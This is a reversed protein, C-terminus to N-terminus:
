LLGRFRKGPRVSTIKQWGQDICCTMVHRSEVSKEEQRGMGHGGQEAAEERQNEQGIGHNGSLGVSARHTVFSRCQGPQQGPGREPAPAAACREVRKPCVRKM